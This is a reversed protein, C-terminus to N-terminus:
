EKKKGNKREQEKKRRASRTVCRAAGRGRSKPGPKLKKRHTDPTWEKRVRMIRKLNVIGTVVSFTEEPEAVSGCFANGLIRHAKIDAFNNEIIARRGALWANYDKQDKTLQGNRPKRHPMRIDACELVKEARQPGSDLNVPIRREPPTGPDTLSAAM